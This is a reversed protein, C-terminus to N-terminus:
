TPSSNLTGTRPSTLQHTTVKHRGFCALVCLTNCKCARRREVWEGVISLQRLFQRRREVVEGREGGGWGKDGPSPDTHDPPPLSALVLAELEEFTPMGEVGAAAQAAAPLPVQGGEWAEGDVGRFQGVPPVAAPSPGGQAEESSPAGEEGQWLVGAGAQRRRGRLRKRRELGEQLEQWRRKRGDLESSGEGAETGPPSPSGLSLLLQLLEAPPAGERWVSEGQLFLYSTPTAGFRSLYTDMCEWLAFTHCHARGYLHLYMFM